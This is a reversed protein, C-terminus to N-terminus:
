EALIRDSSEVLSVFITSNGFKAGWNALDNESVERARSCAGCSFVSIHKAVIKDRLESLPADGQADSTSQVGHGFTASQAAIKAKAQKKYVVCL